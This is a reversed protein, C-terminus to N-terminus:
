RSPVPPISRNRSHKVAEECIEVISTVVIEFGLSKPDTFRCISLHDSDLGFVAEQDPRLHLVANDKNVIKQALDTEM